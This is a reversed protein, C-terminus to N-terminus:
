KRAERLLTEPGGGGAARQFVEFRGHCRDCHGSRPAYQYLPM